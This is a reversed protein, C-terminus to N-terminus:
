MPLTMHQDATDPYISSNTALHDPHSTICYAPVQCSKIMVCHRRHQQQGRTPCYNIDTRPAEWRIGASLVVPNLHIDPWWGGAQQNSSCDFRRSIQLQEIPPLGDMTLLHYISICLSIRLNYSVSPKLLRIKVVDSVTPAMIKCRFASTPVKLWSFAKSSAKETITFSWIKRFNTEM